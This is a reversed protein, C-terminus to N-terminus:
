WNPEIKSKQNQPCYNDRWVELFAHINGDRNEIESLYAKTLELSSYKKSDLDKRAGAITLTKIDLM